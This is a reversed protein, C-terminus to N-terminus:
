ESVGHRTLQPGNIVDRVAHAAHLRTGAKVLAPRGKLPVGNDDLWAIELEDRESRVQQLQVFYKRYLYKSYSVAMGSVVSAIGLLLVLIPAYRSM